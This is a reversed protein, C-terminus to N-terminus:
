ATAPASAPTLQVQYGLARLQRVLKRTRRQVVKADPCQGREQYNVGQHLIKWTLRCIRHALAWIARNHGMRPLWRRYLIDFISGKTKVAAEAVQTLVRRM